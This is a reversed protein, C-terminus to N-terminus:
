TVQKIQNLMKTVLGSKGMGTLLVTGECHFIMECAKVFTEDVTNVLASLAQAEKELVRRGILLLDQNL